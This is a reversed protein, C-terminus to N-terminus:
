VPLDSPLETARAHVPYHSLWDDGIRNKPPQNWRLHGCEHHHETTSVNGGWYAFNSILNMSTDCWYGVAYWLGGQLVPGTIQPPAFAYGPKSFSLTYNQGVPLHNFLFDGSAGTTTSGSVAGSLNVTVGSIQTGQGNSVTGSITGPQGPPSSGTGTIVQGSATFLPLASSLVLYIVKRAQFTM